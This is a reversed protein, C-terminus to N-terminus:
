TGLSILSKSFSSDNEVKAGLNRIRMYFLLYLNFSSQFVISENLKSKSNPLFCHKFLHPNNM